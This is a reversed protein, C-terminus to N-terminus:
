EVGYRAGRKKDDYRRQRDVAKTLMIPYPVGRMWRLAIGSVLGAFGGDGRNVERHIRTFIRGHRDSAGKGLPSIPILRLTKEEAVKELM